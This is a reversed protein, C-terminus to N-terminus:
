HEHSPVGLEGIDRLVGEQSLAPVLLANVAIDDEAVGLAHAIAPNSGLDPSEGGDITNTAMHAADVRGLTLLLM